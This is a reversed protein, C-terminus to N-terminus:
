AVERLWNALLAPGHTTRFSEPHFQVGFTAHRRHRLAMVAGDHDYALGVLPAPLPAEVYLSHYRCAEFPQPLRQFLGTGDHDVPTTRGHVPRGRVIRGGFALGIAQHGLCVGLIPRQGSWRRIAAVSCGADEPRGPGPSVVIGRADGLREADVRDSRRVDVTAGLQQLAQALNWVFSDKNDLLLILRPRQLTDDRAAIFM